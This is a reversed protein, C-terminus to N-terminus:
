LKLRPDDAVIWTTECLQGGLSEARLDIASARALTVNLRTALTSANDFVQGAVTVSRHIPSPFGTPSSMHIQLAPLDRTAELVIRHNGSAHIFLGAAARFVGFAAEDRIEATLDAIRLGAAALLDTAGDSHIPHTPPLPGQDPSSLAFRAGERLAHDRHNTYYRWRDYYRVDGCLHLARVADGSAMWIPELQGPPYSETIGRKSILNQTEPLLGVEHEAAWLHLFTSDIGFQRRFDTGIRGAHAELSAAFAAWASPPGAVLGAQLAGGYRAVVDDFVRRTNEERRPGILPEYIFSCFVPDRCVYLKDERVHEFLDFVNSCFWIDADYLAVKELSPNGACIRAVELYRGYSLDHDPSAPALHVGAERLLARKRESLGGDIAVVHGDYGTSRLSLIFPVLMEYWARHNDDIAVFVAHHHSAM